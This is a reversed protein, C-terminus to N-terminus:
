NPGGNSMDAPDSSGKAAPFADNLARLWAPIGYNTPVQVDGESSAGQPQHAPQVMKGNRVKYTVTRCQTGSEGGTCDQVTVYTAATATLSAMAIITM